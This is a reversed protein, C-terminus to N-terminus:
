YISQNNTVDVHHNQDRERRIDDSRIHLQNGASMHGSTGTGVPPPICTCVLVNM